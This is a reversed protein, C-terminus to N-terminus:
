RGSRSRFFLLYIIPGFVPFCILVLIWCGIGCATRGSILLDWVMWVVLVLHIVGIIASAELVM